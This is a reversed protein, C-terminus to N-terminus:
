KVDDGKGRSSVGQLDGSSAPSDKGDRDPVSGSDESNHSDVSGGSNDSDGPKQSDDAMIFQIGEDDPDPPVPPSYPKRFIFLLKLPIINRKIRTAYFHEEGELDGITGAENLAERRARYLAMSKEIIFALVYLSLLAMILFFAWSYGGLAHPFWFDLFLIIGLILILGIEPGVPACDSSLSWLYAMSLLGGLFSFSWMLSLWRTDVARIRAEQRVGAENFGSTFAVIYTSKDIGDYESERTSDNSESSTFSSANGSKSLLSNTGSQANKAVHASPIASVSNRSGSGTNGSLVIDESDDPSVVQPNAGVTEAITESLVTNNGELMERVTRIINHPILFGIGHERLGSVFGSAMDILSEGLRRLFFPPNEFSSVLTSDVEVITNESPLQVTWQSSIVPASIVPLEMLTSSFLGPSSVVSTFRVSLTQVNRHSAYSFTRADEKQLQRNKEPFIMNGDEFFTAQLLGQPLTIKLDGKSGNHLLFEVFSHFALGSGSRGSSIVGTEGRLSEVLINSSEKGTSTLFDVNVVVPNSTRERKFLSRCQQKGISWETLVSTIAPDTIKWFGTTEMERQSPFDFWRPGSAKLAVYAPCQRLVGDSLEAPLDFVVRARKDEAVPVVGKVNLVWYVPARQLLAVKCLNLSDNFSEAKLLEGDGSFKVDGILSPLLLNVQGGEADRGKGTISMEILLGDNDSGIVTVSSIIQPILVLEQSSLSSAKQARSGSDLSSGGTFGGILEVSTYDAGAEPPKIAYCCESGNDWKLTLGSIPIVSGSPAYFNTVSFHKSSFRIRGNEYQPRWRYSIKGYAEGAFSVEPGLKQSVVFVKDDPVASIETPFPAPSFLPRLSRLRSDPSYVFLRSFIDPQGGEFSLFYDARNLQLEDDFPPNDALEKLKNLTSVPISICKQPSASTSIAGSPSCASSRVDLPSQGATILGSGAEASQFIGTSSLFQYFLVFIFLVVCFQLFPRM